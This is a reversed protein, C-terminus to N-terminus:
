FQSLLSTPAFELGELSILRKPRGLRKRFHDDSFIDFTTPHEEDESTWLCQGFVTVEVTVLTQQGRVDDEYDM